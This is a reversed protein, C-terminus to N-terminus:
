KMDRKRFICYGAYICVAAALLSSLLSGAIDKPEMALLYRTIKEGNVLINQSNSVNTLLDMESAFLVHGTKIGFGSDLLMSVIVSGGVMVYGLVGSVISNRLITTLLIVESILRVALIFLLLYRILLEGPLVEQGWGFILGMLLMPLATVMVSGFLGWVLALLCRSFYVETRSHGSLTEYNITKDAMDGGFIKTCLVIAFIIYVFPLISLYHLAYLGGNIGSMDSVGLMPVAALAAGLLFTIYTLNDKKIQYNQAKMINWM